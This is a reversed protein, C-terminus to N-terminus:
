SVATAIDNLNSSYIIRGRSRHKFLCRLHARLAKPRTSQLREHKPQPKHESTGGTEQPPTVNNCGHLISVGCGRRVPRVNNVYGAGWWCKDMTERM